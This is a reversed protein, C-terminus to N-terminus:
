SDGEQPASHPAFIPGRHTHTASSQAVPRVVIQDINVHAPLSLVAVIIAAVDDATLPRDVDRYTAAARDPDNVRNLAFEETHVMGPAIETIRLTGLVNIEFTQRWTEPATDTISALDFAGGAVNVLVDCDTISEALGAVDDPDTLDTVHPVAGTELTLDELREARRAVAHVRYGDAALARVTAAGIGSSAGTVVATPM